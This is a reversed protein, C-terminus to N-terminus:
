NNIILIIIFINSANKHTSILFIFEDAYQLMVMALYEAAIDRVDDDDITWITVAFVDM